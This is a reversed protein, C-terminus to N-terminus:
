KDLKDERGLKNVASTVHSSWATLAAHKEESWTHRQYVGAIGSRTGSLHNLVAETVEFRVGLRQLGTACTRRLDHFRWSPLEGKDFETLELQKIMQTCFRNLRTKAVSFGRAPKDGSATIIYGSSPWVDRKNGQQKSIAGLIEIVQASLPVDHAIGNKSRQAPITWRGDARKVEAWTMGAVEERRQGTLILLRVFSSFPYGLKNAAHWVVTLEVDDLVRDRSVPAPPPEMESMPSQPLDGRSVAWRLLRRLAAFANRRSAPRDAMRDMITSIDSRRIETLPRDKLVPMAERRLLGAALEHGGKWESALYEAIFREAYASFALDIAAHRKERKIFGPDEGRDVIHSLRKAEKRAQDPTWAGHAGITHRQVKSARGGMRYQFIYTRGGSPTLKLGFGKIENDWLFQPTAGVQLADVARKTIHGQAM